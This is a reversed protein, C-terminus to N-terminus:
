PATAAPQKTSSKKGELVQKLGRYARSLRKHEEAVKKLRTEIKALEAKIADQLEPISTYHIKVSAIEIIM